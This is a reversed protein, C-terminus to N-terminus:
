QNSELHEGKYTKIFYKLINRILKQRSLNKIEPYDQALNHLDQLLAVPLRVQTVKPPKEELIIKSNSKAM